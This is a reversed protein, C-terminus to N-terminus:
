RRPKRHYRKTQGWKAPNDIIYQRIRYISGDHRIIHEYFRSQWAFDPHDNKRCWRTVASKYSHIIAQLSRRKLPGFQNTQNQASINPRSVTDTPALIDPRSVTESPALIDRLSAFNRTGVGNGSSPDGHGIGNGSSPDGQPAAFNRTGVPNTGGPNSNDIVVIGHMHDPMIVHADLRVHNHHQPIDRWFQDAIQGIASLRMKGNVVNGFFRVRNKTCITVFYRGNAAYDRNPLRISANRYKGKYLDGSM